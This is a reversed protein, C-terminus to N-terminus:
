AARRVLKKMLFGVAISLLVCLATILGVGRYDAPSRALPIPELRELYPLVEAAHRYKVNTSNSCAWTGLKGEPSRGAFIVYTEGEKFSFACTNPITHVTVEDLDVGKWSEEVELRAGGSSLFGGVGVVRGLFVADANRFEEEVPSRICSCAFSSEAALIIVFSALSLIKLSKMM